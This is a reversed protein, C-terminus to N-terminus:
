MGCSASRSAGRVVGEPMTLQAWLVPRNVEIWAKADDENVYCEFGVPNRLDRTARCYDLLAAIDLNGAEADQAVSDGMENGGWGNEALERIGEDSASNFWQTADFNVEYLYDDSHVKARISM